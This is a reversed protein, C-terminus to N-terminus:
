ELIIKNTERDVSVLQDEKDFLYFRQEPYHYLFMYMSGTAEDIAFEGVKYYKRKKVGDKEYISRTCVNFLRM